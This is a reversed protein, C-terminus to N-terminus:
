MSYKKKWIIYLLWGPLACLTVLKKYHCSFIKRWSFKGFLSYVIYLLTEKIRIKLSFQPSMTILSGYAMLHPCQFRLLRGEDSLGGKLYETIYIIKNVFLMDYKEALWIWAVSESIFKEGEYEPFRFDKLYKTVWVEAKDGSVGNNYREVIFNSIFRDHSYSDGIVNVNSYGRLYGIGCIPKEFKKNSIENWDTTITNVADATLADDSDVIFLLETTVKEFAINLATHKGGNNKKIYNIKFPSEEKFEEVKLDTNDTSGDDVILWEFDMCTQRCLSDFLRQLLSARNYTPTVITILPM